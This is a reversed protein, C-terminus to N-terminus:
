NQRRRLRIPLPALLGGGGGAATPHGGALATERAMSAAVGAPEPTATGARPVGAPAARGGPCALHDGRGVTLLGEHRAASAAAISDTEGEIGAHIRGAELVAEFAAAYAAPDAELFTAEPVLRHAVGLPQGLRVGFRAAAPSRDLVSGPDWPRGGLVLPTTPTWPLGLRALELRLPLNPWAFHLLRM